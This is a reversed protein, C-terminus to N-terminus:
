LYKLKHFLAFYISLNDEFSPIHSLLNLAYVRFDPIVPLVGAKLMTKDNPSMIEEHKFHLYCLVWRM